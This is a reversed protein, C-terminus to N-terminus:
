LRVPCDTSKCSVDVGNEVGKGKILEFLYTAQNRLPLLAYVLPVAVGHVRAHIAYIQDFLAPAARFTDDMYWM